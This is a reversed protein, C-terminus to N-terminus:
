NKSQMKQLWDYEDEGESLNFRPSNGPSPVQAQIGSLSAYPRREVGLSPVQPQMGSLFTRSAQLNPRDLSPRRELASLYSSGGGPSPVQQM